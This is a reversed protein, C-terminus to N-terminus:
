DELPQVVLTEGYFKIKWCNIRENLIQESFVDILEKKNLCFLCKTSRCIHRGSLFDEVFSRGVLKYYDIKLSM